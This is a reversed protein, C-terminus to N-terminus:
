TLTYLVFCFKFSMPACLLLIHKIIVLIIIPNIYICNEYGVGLLRCYNYRAIKYIKYFNRKLAYLDVTCHIPINPKIDFCVICCTTKINFAIYKIPM